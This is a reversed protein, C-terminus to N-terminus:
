QRSGGKHKVKNNNTVEKMIPGIYQQRNSQKSGRECKARNSGIGEKM